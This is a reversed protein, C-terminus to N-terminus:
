SRTAGRGELALRDNQTVIRTDPSFAALGVILCTALAQPTDGMATRKINFLMNILIRPLSAAEAALHIARRGESASLGRGSSEHRARSLTLRNVILRNVTLRNM